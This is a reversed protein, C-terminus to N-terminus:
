PENNGRESMTREADSPLQSKRRLSQGGVPIWHASELLVDSIRGGWKRSFEGPGSNTTILTPLNHGCRHRIITEVIEKRDPSVIELTLEDLALIPADRIFAMLQKRTPAAAQGMNKEGAAMDRRQERRDGYTNQVDEILTGVRLYLTPKVRELHQMIACILGTKGVGLGGYLVISNRAVDIDLDTPPQMQARAYVDRLTFWHGDSWHEAFLVCAQQALLKGARLNSELAFWSNFTMEGYRAPLDQALYRKYRRGLVEFRLAQGRACDCYAWVQSEADHIDGEAIYAGQDDCRTCVRRMRAEERTLGAKKWVDAPAREWDGGYGASDFVQSAEVARALEPNREAMRLLLLNLDIPQQTTRSKTM